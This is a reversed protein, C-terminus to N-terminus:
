CGHGNRRGIFGPNVVHGDKILVTDKILGQPLVHDRLILQGGDHLMQHETSLEIFGCELQLARSAHPGVRLVSALLHRGQGGGQGDVFGVPQDGTVALVCAQEPMPQGWFADQQVPHAIFAAVMNRCTHIGGGNGDGDAGLHQVRRAQSPGFFGFFGPCDGDREEAIAGGTFTVKVFGGVKGRAQLKGHHETALVISPGDRDGGTDLGGTFCKGLSPNRVAHRTHSGIAVIKKGHCFDHFVGDCSSTSPFAGGEDLRHGVSQTVM